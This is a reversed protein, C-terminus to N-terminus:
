QGGGLAHVYVALMKVMEDGLREEWPPMVGHRPNIIQSRVEAREGGYLWINDNLAPAGLQTMGGGEPGHCATCQNAYIESGAEALEADEPERSLSIVYEAVAHIDERGLMDGFAPMQSSRSDPHENRVGYAVTHHISELDGGWLWSDDVLAPYGGPRGAGGQGHCAACNDAFAAEGGRLSFNLLDPNDMIGALETERIGDLYTAQAARAQQITQEVEARREWGLLGKTYGSVGPFAPFLVMYGVAWVICAYFVYLWWKPLPTNLEEIGDWEHGTTEQGTLDDKEKKTPM